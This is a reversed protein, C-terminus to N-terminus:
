RVGPAPAAAGAAPRPQAAPAELAPLALRALAGCGGLDLRRPAVAGLRVEQRRAKV